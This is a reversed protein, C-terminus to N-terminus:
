GIPQPLPVSGVYACTWPSASTGGTVTGPDLAGIAATYTGSCPAGGLNTITVTCKSSSGFSIPSTCNTTIVNPNSLDCNQGFLASALALVCGAVFASRLM